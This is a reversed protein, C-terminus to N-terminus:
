TPDRRDGDVAVGAVDGGITVQTEANLEGTINGTNRDIAVSAVRGEALLESFTSFTIERSSGGANFQNFVFIGLILLMVLLWPNFSRKLLLGGAERGPFSGPRARALSRQGRTSHSAPYWWSM